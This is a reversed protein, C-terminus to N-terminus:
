RYLKVVATGQESGYGEDSARAFVEAAAAAMPVGARVAAAADALYGLDKRVLEVPFLPAFNGALMGQAAASAAPSAVPTAAIIRAARGVDAGSRGLWGILEATAAIQVGLLANVALKVMAGSGIPGAHHIASGMAQLVPEARAVADAEGGVLFILQGAEAQPRSGAVPADICAVGAELCARDLERVWDPTVTSCEVALAGRRMGALAGQAPALWVERAAADDRVMSLAFEAEAVADCPTGALRAGAAVLPDARGPTRNWVTVGHGARLLAGAMRSGMAGLGLVSVRAM